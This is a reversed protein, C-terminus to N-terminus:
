ALRVERIHLPEDTIPVSIQCRYRIAIPIGNYVACSETRVPYPAKAFGNSVARPV